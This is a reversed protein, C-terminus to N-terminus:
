EPIAAPKASHDELLEIAVKDPGEIIAFEIQGGAITRPDFTVKVGDKHV